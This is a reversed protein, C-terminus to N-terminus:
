VPHHSASAKDVISTDVSIVDTLTLGAYYAVSWFANWDSFGYAASEHPQPYIESGEQFGIDNDDMTETIAFGVDYSALSSAIVAHLSNLVGVASYSGKMKAVKDSVWTVPKDALESPKLQFASMYGEAMRYAVTDYSEFSLTEEEINDPISMADSMILNLLDVLKLRLNSIDFSQVSANKWKWSDDCKQLEYGRELITCAFNVRKRESAVKRWDTGIHRDNFESQSVLLNKMLENLAVPIDLTDELTGAIEIAM